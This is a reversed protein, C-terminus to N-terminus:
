SRALALLVLVFSALAAFARIYNLNNWRVEYAARADRFGEITFQSLDMSAIMNNLPVNGLMTIGVTGIGYVILASFVLYFSIDIKFKFQLYSCCILLILAGLFVIFFQPNLIEKNISQMTELYAQDSIKRTGPIVSIVWAYFLGASLATTFVSAFLILNRINFEM